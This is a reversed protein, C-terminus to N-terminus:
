GAAPLSFRFTSGKGPESDVLVRSGHAEIIQKVVALGIGVGGFQRTPSSDVQYFRDFIRDQLDPPIGVGTDQVAMEVAPQGGEGEVPKAGLTVTGGAPTFKTANDVLHTLATMLEQPDALIPPLDEAADVGLQLKQEAVRGRFSEVLRAFLSSIYVPERNLAVEGQDLRVFALLSEIMRLLRKASEDIAQIGRISTAPLAGMGGSLLIETYGLIPALPTRLEHSLTNLFESKMRDVAQLQTYARQVEDYLQANSVAVAAQSSLSTLLQEDLPTFEGGRKNLVQFVGIVQGQPNRMPVCLISRTQYGTRRDVEPNFRPDTHADSIRVPTGTSAVMGAIGASLPIRIEERELGQAVRSWLGGQARDVLFVTSREAQLLHSTTESITRLLADLDLESSIAAGIRMFRSLRDLNTRLGDYIQANALAVAVQSALLILVEEDGQTFPGTRKNLLELVGQVDGRRNKIPVCLIQRTRYGTAADVGRYFRTDAYADDVVISQGTAAVLGAIGQHLKLRITKDPIGMAISSHLEGTDKDLLYLTGRDAELLACAQETILTTLSGFATEASALRVIELVGRLKDAAIEPSM